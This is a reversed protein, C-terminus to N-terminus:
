SSFMDGISKEKYGVTGDDNDEPPDPLEDDFDNAIMLNDTFKGPLVGTTAYLDMSEIFMRIIQRIPKNTPDIISLSSELFDPPMDYKWSIANTHIESLKQLLPYLDQNNVPSLILGQSGTVQRFFEGILEAFHSDVREGAFQPMDRADHKREGFFIDEQLAKASAALTYIPLNHEGSLNMLWSLNKYSNLRSVKGMRGVIELEDILIVWGKYGLVKLLLPFFEIFASLHDRQLFRPMARYALNQDSKVIQKAKTINEKKGMLANYLLIMDREEYRLFSQLILLPLPHSIKDGTEPLDIMMQPHIHQRMLQNLLGPINADGVLIHSSLAPFLNNLNNLNLDRSLTLYSVGFGRALIHKEILKLFHTKGQGYDGWVVRGKIKKGAQLNALDNDIRDVLNQRLDPLAEVLARTPIGARIAELLLVNQFKNKSNDIM